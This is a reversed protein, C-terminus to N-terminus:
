VGMRYAAAETLVQDAAPQRLYTGLDRCLREVPNPQLFAGVGLSRQVLGIIEMCARETAIRALNVTAIAAAPDADADEALPAAHALWLRATDLAIFVQGMRAQQHPDGARGRGVLQAVTAEVLAQMGGLTVASTRWAGTSLDPERLYDGPAGFVQGPVGDFQVAGTAAARMGQMGGALPSVTVGDLAVLVLRAQGAADDATVVARSVHGAGSCFQKTGTLVGDASVRLGGSPPDTVWLAHLHGAQIDSAAQELATPGAYRTLLRVANVHAEFVRGVALNGRGIQCLLALIAAAGAPESGWGLGGSQVPLCATLAGLDRLLAVDDAPFQAARDLSAARGQM